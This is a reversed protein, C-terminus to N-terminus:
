NTVKYTITNSESDIQVSEITDKYTSTTTAEAAVLTAIDAPIQLTVTQNVPGAVTNNHGVYLDFTANETNDYISYTTSATNNFYVKVTPRDITISATGSRDYLGNNASIKVLEDTKESNVDLVAAMDFYQTGGANLKTVDFSASKRNASIVAKDSAFEMNENRATLSLESGESLMLGDPLSITVSIPDDTFDGAVASTFRGSLTTNKENGLALKSPNASLYIYSFKNTILTKEQWM